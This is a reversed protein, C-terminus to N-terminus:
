RKGAYAAITADIVARHKAADLEAALVKQAILMGLKAAEQQLGAVAKDRALGIEHQTREKVERAESEAAHRADEILRKRDAEGEAIIATAERRAQELKDEYSAKLKEAEARLREAEAKQGAIGQERADLAALLPAWATKYLVLLVTAFALGTWFVLGFGHPDLYFPPHEGSPSSALLLPVLNM